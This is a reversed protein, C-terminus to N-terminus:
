SGVDGGLQQSLGSTNFKQLRRSGLKGNVNKGKKEKGAKKRKQM